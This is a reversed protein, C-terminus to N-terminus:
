LDVMMVVQHPSALHAQRRSDSVLVAEAAINLSPTVSYVKTKYQSVTATRKFADQPRSLRTCLPDYINTSCHDSLKLSGEPQGESLSESQAATYTRLMVTRLVHVPWCIHRACHRPSMCGRGKHRRQRGEARLRQTTAHLRKGGSRSVQSERRCSCAGGSPFAGVLAM